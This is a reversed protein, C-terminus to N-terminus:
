VKPSFTKHVHSSHKSQHLGYSPQHLSPVTVWSMHGMLRTWLSAHPLPPATSDLILSLLRHWVPQQGRPTAKQEVWPHASPPSPQHTSVPLRDGTLIETKKVLKGLSGPMLSMQHSELKGRSPMEELGFASSKAAKQKNNCIASHRGGQRREEFWSLGAQLSPATSDSSYSLTFGKFSLNWFCVYVLVVRAELDPCSIFVGCGALNIILHLCM